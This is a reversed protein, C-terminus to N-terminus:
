ESSEEKLLSKSSVSKAHNANIFSSAISATSQSSTKKISLRSKMDDLYESVYEGMKDINM